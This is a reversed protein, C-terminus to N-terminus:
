CFPRFWVLSRPNVSSCKCKWPNPNGAVKAVERLSRLQKGSIGGNTGMKRVSSPSGEKYVSSELYYTFILHLLWSLFNKADILGEYELILSHKWYEALLHSHPLFM